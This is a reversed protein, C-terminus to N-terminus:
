YQPYKRSLRVDYSNQFSTLIQRLQWCSQITALPTEVPSAHPGHRCFKPKGGPQGWKEYVLGIGNSISRRAVATTAKCITYMLKYM